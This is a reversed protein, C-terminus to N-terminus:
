KKSLLFGKLDPFTAEEFDIPCGLDVSFALWVKSEHAGKYDQIFGKKKFRHYIRKAQRDMVGFFDQIKDQAMSITVQSREKSIAKNYHLWEFFMCETFNDSNWVDRSLTPNSNNAYLELTDLLFQITDFCAQKATEKTIIMERKYLGLISALKFFYNKGAFMMGKSVARVRENPNLFVFKTWVLFWEVIEDIAEKQFSAYDTVYNSTNIYEEMEKSKDEAYLNSVLDNEKTKSPKLPFSFFRRFTGSDFFVPPFITNHIMFAFRTEPYYSLLDTDVLKKESKNYGFTDMALRLERMINGEHKESETLLNQAEDVVLAKFGFYGKKEIEQNKQKIKKGILQELNTRAGSCEVAQTHKRIASKLIGKGSGAGGMFLLHIRNDFAENGVRITLTPQRLSEIFYVMAKKVSYYEQGTLPVQNEILSFSALHSHTNKFVEKYESFDVLSLSPVDNTEEKVFDLAKNYTTQKYSDPRTGWKGLKSHKEMINFVQEKTLGYYNLKIVLAMEAESRSSYAKEWEGNLLAQLKIDAKNELVKKEDWQTPLPTDKEQTEQQKIYKLLQERVFFTGITKIDQDKIIEYKKDCLESNPGLVMMNKARIEGSSEKFLLNPMNEIHYYYHRGENATKVTLTPPFKEELIKKIEEFYQGKKDVDIVVLNGHGGIVGYRKKSANPNDSMEKDLEQLTLGKQWEEKIGPSKGQKLDETKNLVCFRYQSQNLQPPLNM